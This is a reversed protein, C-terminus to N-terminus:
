MDLLAKKACSSRIRELAPSRPFEAVLVRALDLAEDIRQLECFVQVTLAMREEVLQGHAHNKQHLELAQLANEPRGQTWETQARELLVLENRLNETNVLEVPPEETAPEQEQVSSVIAAPETSEVQKSLVAVTTGGVLLLALATIKVGLGISTGADASAPDLPASLAARVREQLGEPPIEMRGADLIAKAEKSLENM